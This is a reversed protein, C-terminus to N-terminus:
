ESLNSLFEEIERRSAACTGQVLEKSGGGRGQLVQNFAKGLSRVDRGASGLAYKYGEEDSGSFVAALEGKECLLSCLQRLEGPALGEEFMCHLPASELQSVQGAFLKKQTEALRRALAEGEKQIREVAGTVEYPKSSTLASITLVSANKKQYDRLARGGCLMTVRTGGKYKQASVLKIIGVPGTTPLHTGCCACTDFGPVTVIRVQGTLAKKSRYELADLEEQSPYLVQVPLNRYVAQNARNEVELLQELTLEGNLDITVIEAGIHFGVNDYGYLQHIIGSVIHEGTHQQMMDLRFGEDVKGNVEEGLLLPKDTFHVVEGNKERVDLVAADGLFGKDAPQGGGEPYFATRDLVVQWGKEQQTCSQVRATFEALLSDNYYLKETM